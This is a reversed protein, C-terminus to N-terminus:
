KSSERAEKLRRLAQPLVWVGALLFAAGVVSSYLFDPVLVGICVYAVGVLVYPVLSRV